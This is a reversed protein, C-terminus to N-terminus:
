EIITFPPEHMARLDLTPPRYGRLSSIAIASCVRMSPSPNATSIRIDIQGFDVIRGQRLDAILPHHVLDRDQAVLRQAVVRQDIEGLPHARQEHMDAILETGQLSRLDHVDGIDLFVPPREAGEAIALQM